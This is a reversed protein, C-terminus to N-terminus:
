KVPSKALIDTFYQRLDKWNYYPWLKSEMPLKAERENILIKVYVPANATASAKAKATGVTKGAATKRYFIFQINAAMPIYDVINWHYALSDLNGTKYNGGNIGMLCSLPLVDSDHGFRLTAGRGNCAIVSDAGKIINKLLYTQSYPMKAGSLESYGRLCYWYANENLYYNYLEEKTFIDKMSIKFDLDQMSQALNCLKNFLHVSQNSPIVKGDPGYSKKDYPVSCRTIFTTDTFLSSILRDPHINNAEFAELAGRRNEDEYFKAFSVESDKDDYNMYYMDHESADNTITINKNYARLEGCEAMMSLICRIITTSRADVKVNGAFVEPFNAVMRDAIGRHQKAGLQTLEGLRGTSAVFMSDIKLKVSKGLPTLIGAKDAAAFVDHAFGYDKPSILWRSGHRGYHSIYFPKYGQPAPTLKPVAAFAPASQTATYPYAWLSGGGINVNNYIKNKIEQANASISFILMVCTLLSIVTINKKMNIDIIKEM